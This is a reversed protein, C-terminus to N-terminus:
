KKVSELALELEKIAQDCAKLAAQKHGGFNNGPQQLELKASELAKIASFDAYPQPVSKAGPVGPPAPPATAITNPAGAFALGACLAGILAGTTLLSTETTL